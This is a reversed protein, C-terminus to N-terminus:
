NTVIFDTFHDLELRVFSDEIKLKDTPISKRSDLSNERRM